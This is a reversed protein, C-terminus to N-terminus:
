NTIFSKVDEFSDNALDIKENKIEHDNKKLAEESQVRLQSNFGIERGSPKASENQNINVKNPAPFMM